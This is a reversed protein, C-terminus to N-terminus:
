KAKVAPKPRCHSMEIAHRLPLMSSYNILKQLAVRLQALISSRRSHLWHLAQTSTMIPSSLLTNAARAIGLAHRFTPGALFGSEVKMTRCCSRILVKVCVLLLALAEGMVSM